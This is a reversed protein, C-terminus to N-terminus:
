SLDDNSSYGSYKGNNQKSNILIIQTEVSDRIHKHMEVAITKTFIVTFFVALVILKIEKIIFTFIEVVVLALDWIRVIKL